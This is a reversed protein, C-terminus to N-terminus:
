FSSLESIPEEFERDCDPCEFGQSLHWLCGTLQSHGDFAAIMALFHITVDAKKRTELVMASLVERGLALAEKFPKSLKPPMKPRKGNMSCAVIGSALFMADFRDEGELQQAASVLHPLAAYSATGVEYQHCLSSWLDIWYNKPLPKRSSLRALEHPIDSAEGYAHKLKGWLPDDLSLM